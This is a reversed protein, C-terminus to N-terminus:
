DMAIDDDATLESEFVKELAGMYSGVKWFHPTSITMYDFALATATFRSKIVPIKPYRQSFHTLLLYKANMRTGMEMAQGITSHGKEAAKEWEEDAMSAEHILLTVNKGAETLTDCPMTDGSYAFSWGNNHRAVIGFCSNTRHRVPVAEISDFGLLGTIEELKTSIPRSNSERSCRSKHKEIQVIRVGNEVGLGIDELDHYERVCLESARNLILYLPDKPAPTLARRTTLLKLLGMHHDGHIHSVFICKVDALVSYANEPATEDIGFRRCMQGWTNEGCDLIISGYNPMQIVTSIVISLADSFILVPNVIFFISGNRYKSPLASGTGLTTVRFDDGPAPDHTHSSMLDSIQQRAKNFSDREDDTSLLSEGRAHTATHEKYLDNKVGPFLKLVPPKPPTMETVFGPCLIYPNRFVNNLKAIEDKSDNERPAFFMDKDLESLVLSLHASSQFSISNPSFDESAVLHNCEPPAVTAVWSRYRPDRLVGPGARHYISGLVFPTESRIPHFTQPDPLSPIYDKTPCDIILFGTPAESEGMCMDPTIINQVGNVTVTVSEGKTLKGRERKPVGLADAAKPDFKGRIEPGLILYAVSTSISGEFVPLRNLSRRPRPARSIGPPSNEKNVTAPAQNQSSRGPFMDCIITARWEDAEAGKLTSTNRSHQTGSRESGGDSNDRVPRKPSSSRLSGGSAKRKVPISIGESIQPSMSFAYVRIFTDEYIKELGQAQTIETTNASMWDRFVYSRASALFHNLGPPGLVDIGTVGADALSMLMGTLGGLRSVKMQTLFIAKSKKIGYKQQIFSRTTGEGCNFLYHATDFHVSICPETDSTLASVVRTHWRMNSNASARTKSSM